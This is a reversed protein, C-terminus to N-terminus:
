GQDGYGQDGYGQDDHGPQQQPIQDGPYSEQPYEPSAPPASAPDGYGDGDDPYEDDMYVAPAAQQQGAVVAAIALSPMMTLM